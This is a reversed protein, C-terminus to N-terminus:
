FLALFRRVGLVCCEMPLVGRNFYALLFSGVVIKSALPISSRPLISYPMDRIGFSILVDYVGLVM